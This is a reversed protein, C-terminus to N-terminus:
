FYVTMISYPLSILEGSNAPVLPQPVVYPVHANNSDLAVGLAVNTTNQDVTWATHTTVQPPLPGASDSITFPISLNGHNIVVVSSGTSNALALAYLAPMTTVGDSANGGGVVLTALAFDSFTTARSAVGYGVAFASLYFDWPTANPDNPSLNWGYPPISTNTPSIGPQGALIEQGRFAVDYFDVEWDHGINNTLVGKMNDTIAQVGLHSVKGTAVLRLGYEANLAGLFITYGRSPTHNNGTYFNKEQTAIGDIVFETIAVPVGPDALMSMVLQEANLITSFPSVCTGTIDFTSTGCPYHHQTTFNWFRPSHSLWETVSDREGCGGYGPLMVQADPNGLFVHSSINFMKQMYLTTNPFVAGPKTTDLFPENILEYAIIKENKHLAAFIGANAPEDTWGNLTVIQGAAGANDSLLAVDSFKQKGLIGAMSFLSARNQGACSGGSGYARPATSNMIGNGTEDTYSPVPWLFDLYTADYSDTGYNYSSSPCGGPFRLWGPTLDKFRARLNTDVAALPFTAM